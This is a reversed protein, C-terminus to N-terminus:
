KSDTVQLIGNQRNQGVGEQPPLVSTVPLVSKERCGYSGHITPRHTSANQSTLATAVAIFLDAAFRAVAMSPLNADLGLIRPIM